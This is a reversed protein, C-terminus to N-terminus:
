RPNRRARSILMSSTLVQPLEEPERGPQYWLYLPVGARGRSELFRTIAPDGNTWDGVLVKVEAERFADRVEDRDIATVENAKCTLCWDATFYVFVPRGERLHAAVRAESWAEAGRPVQATGGSREPVVLIAAAAIAVLIPVAALAATRGNRQRWGVCALALALVLLAAIGALLGETGAQRYLLWLCAAATAAMPIALFRQLRVMWPGPRPLRSRLAPIFGILLFPIALGLGLAAFVGIAGAAPLLLATGLAAGLFPGACPTAVFAALAGTAFGGSPRARGALAPVQFLGALNLAIAASLLLLLMITRPDQLQFAWGAASGAARIALLAGGLAGTGVVAGAAYALADRRAHAPEGGSKALHMAKLALIPFVCPMLNLLLGGAIAGLLALLIARTGLDAVPRGGDPVEGPEATFELGRGDGLALVGAFQEVAGGKRPLDAILTDGSRRFNQEGAYDVAQDTIPFVYPEGVAIDRPLPIAVRLRDGGLEFRAPTVLPRPLARRWEDFRAREPTGAGVPVDLAFSGSEPVCVKDTCALWRASARIPVVGQAGAPVKLRVLVAYDAEYVYNMLGAITLRTPVPYRLPGAEFGPPLTWEVAMPLGADGPNLWYGHWGPTTRMHIALEVEGGPPAPGEAVLQPRINQASALAPVCLLALFIILRRLM